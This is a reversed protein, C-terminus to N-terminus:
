VYIPYLAGFFGHIISRQTGLDYPVAVQLLDIAKSPAGQNLALTGRLVPLYSFRVSTDEPFRIELDHALAKLAFPTVPFRSRLLRETNWRAIIPSRLRPQRM